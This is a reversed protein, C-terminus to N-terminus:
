SASLMAPPCLAPTQLRWQLYEVREQLRTIESAYFAKVGSDRAQKEQFDFIMLVQQIMTEYHQVAEALNQPWEQSLNKEANQLLVWRDASYRLYDPQEDKLLAILEATSLDFIGDAQGLISQFRAGVELMLRAMKRQHPVILHHGDERLLIEQKSLALITKLRPHKDLFRRAMDQRAERDQVIRTLQELAASLTARLAAESVESLKQEASQAAIARAVSRVLQNFDPDPLTRGAEASQRKHEAYYGAVLETSMTNEARLRSQLDELYEDTDSLSDLHEKAKKYRMSWTDIVRILPHDQQRLRRELGQVTEQEFLKMLTRDSRIAELAAYIEKDKQRSLNLIRGTPLDLREPDMPAGAPLDHIATNRLLNHYETQIYQLQPVVMLHDVLVDLWFAFHMWVFVNIVADVFATVNHADITETRNMFRAFTQFGEWRAAYLDELDQFAFQKLDQIFRIINRLDIGKFKQLLTKQSQKREQSQLVWRRRSAYRTNLYDTLRDWARDYFDIQFQRYTNSRLRWFGEFDSLFVEGRKEMSLAWPRFIEHPERDVFYQFIDKSDSRYLPTLRNEEKLPVAGLYVAGLDPDFTVMQGDFPLLTQIAQTAGVMCPVLLQECNQAAHSTVGGDTTLVGAVKAFVDNWENNTHHTVLIVGPKVRRSSNPGLVIQLPATVAGIYAPTAHPDHLIRRASVPRRSEDVTRVRASFSAGGPPNSPLSKARTQVIFAEGDPSFVYELDIHDALKAYRYEHHIERSLEALELVEADSLSPRTIQTRELRTGGGDKTIVRLTKVSIWAELIVDALTGVFWKDDLGRGQVVGEGLGPQSSILYGPRLTGPQYSFIVGSAKSPIFTQLLVAMRAAEHSAGLTVRDEVFRDSFLSAWVQKVGEAAQGASRINLYSDAQGAAAHGERDESTASSRVALVGGLRRTEAAIAAKLSPSLEIRRIRRRIVVAIRRRERLSNAQDLRRIASLIDTNGLVYREYAGTTLVSTDPVRLRLHPRMLRRLFHMNAGKGGSVGVDAARTDDITLVNPFLAEWIADRGLYPGTLDLAFSRPETHFSERLEYWSVFRTQDSDIAQLHATDGNHPLEALAQQRRATKEEGTKELLRVEEPQLRYVLLSNANVDFVPNMAPIGTQETIERALDQVQQHSIEPSVTMVCLSRKEPSYDLLIGSPKRHSAQFATYIRNLAAEEAGDLAYFDYAIFRNVHEARRGIREFRSPEVVLGTEDQVAAAASARNDLKNEPKVNASVTDKDAFLRKYPGRRQTLVRNGEPDILLIQVSHKGRGEIFMEAHGRAVRQLIKLWFYDALARGGPAAGPAIQKTIKELLPTLRTALGRYNGRAALERLKKLNQCFPDDPSRGGKWRLVGAQDHRAFYLSTRISHWIARYGSPRPPKRIELAPLGLAQSEFSPRSSVCDVASELPILLALTLAVLPSAKKMIKLRITTLDVGQTYRKM